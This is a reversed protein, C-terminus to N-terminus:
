ESDADPSSPLAPPRGVKPPNMVTQIAGLVRLASAQAKLSLSAWKAAVEPQSATEANVIWRQMLADLIVAHAALEGLLGASNPKLLTEARDKFAAFAEAPNVPTHFGDSTILGLVEVKSWQGDMPLTFPVKKRQLHAPREWCNTQPSGDPLSPTTM